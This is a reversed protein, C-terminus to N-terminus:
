KSKLRFDQGVDMISGYLQIFRKLAVRLSSLDILTYVNKTLGASQAPRIETM